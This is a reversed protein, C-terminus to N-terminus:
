KDGTQSLFINKKEDLDFVFMELRQEFFHHFIMLPLAISLGLQTTVLAESIGGAMEAAKVAGTGGAANFTMIMGTVTGLLGILPAIGALVGITPNFRELKKIERDLLSDIIESSLLAKQKKLYLKKLFVLSPYRRFYKENKKENIEFFEQETKEDPIKLYFLIIGQFLTLIFGAIGTLVIPYIMVGGKQLYLSVSEIFGPEMKTGKGFCVPFFDSNNSFIDKIKNKDSGAPIFILNEDIIRAYGFENGSKYIGSLYGDMIILKSDYEFGFRKLSNEFFSVITERFKKEEIFPVKIKKTLSEIETIKKKESEFKRLIESSVEKNEIKEELSKIEKELLDIEALYNRERVKFENKVSDSSKILFKREEDLLENGASLGHFLLLFIFFLSIKKM